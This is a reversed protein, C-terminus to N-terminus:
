PATLGDLRGAMLRAVPRTIEHQESLIKLVATIPTALLMGVVGWLVGWIILALLIVIPHLDLSTGMVKPEIVSGILFQVSGPLALALVAVTWSGEPSVLIIPLPLLTAIISGVSPIFNLLFALFGFVFALDVNLFYLISGVLLGTVASLLVKTVLYRKIRSEIELWVPKTAERDVERGILMFVVFILVLVTKSSINIIANTLNVLMSGVPISSLQGRIEEEGIGFRDYPVLAIGQALLSTIKKQYAGANDALEKVSSSVFGGAVSFVLVVILFAGAIALPRPVRCKQTLLKVLPSIAIAVFGALVFPIMVGRLYFLVGAVAFTTLVLLCVTQLRQEPNAKEM